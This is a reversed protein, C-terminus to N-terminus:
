GKGAKTHALIGGALLIERERTTLVCSATLGGHPTMGSAYSLASCIQSVVGAADRVTFRGKRATIVSRLTQAAVHQSVVYTHDADSLMDLPKVIHPHELSCARAIESALRERSPGHALESRLRRM